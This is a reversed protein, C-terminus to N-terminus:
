ESVELEVLTPHVAPNPSSSCCIADWEISAGCCV